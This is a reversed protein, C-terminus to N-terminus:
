RKWCRRGRGIGFLQPSGPPRGVLVLLVSILFIGEERADYITFSFSRKIRYGTNCTATVSCSYIGPSTENGVRLTAFIRPQGSPYSPHTRMWQTENKIPTGEPDFWVISCTKDRFAEIGKGSHASPDFEVCLTLNMPQREFLPPSIVPGSKAYAFYGRLPEDVHFAAQSALLPLSPDMPVARVEYYGASALFQPPIQWQFSHREVSCPSSCSEGRHWSAYSIKAVEATSNWLQIEVDEADLYRNSELCPTIEANYTITFSSPDFWQGESPRTSIWSIAPRRPQGGDLVFETVAINDFQGIYETGGGLYFYLGQVESPSVAPLKAAGVLCGDLYISSSSPNGLDLFVEMRIWRGMHYPYGFPLVEQNDSGGLRILAMRGEKSELGFAMAPQGSENGELEEVLRADFALALHSSSINLGHSLLAEHDVYSAMRLVKNRGEFLLEEVWQSNEGYGAEEIRWDSPLVGALEDSFNEEYAKGVPRSCVHFDTSRGYEGASARVSYANPDPPFTSLNAKITSRAVFTRPEIYQFPEEVEAIKRGQPTLWDFTAYPFPMMSGEPIKLTFTSTLTTTANPGSLFFPSTRGKQDSLTMSANAAANGPGFGLNLGTVLICSGSILLLLSIRKAVTGRDRKM